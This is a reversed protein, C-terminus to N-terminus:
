ARFTYRGAAISVNVEQLRGQVDDLLARVQSRLRGDVNGPPDLVPVIFRRVWLRTQDEDMLGLQMVGGQRVLWDLLEDAPIDDRVQGDLQGNQLAVLMLKSVMERFANAIGLTRPATILDMLRPDKAAERSTYVQMEEVRQAVTTTSELLTQCRTFHESAIVMAARRLLDDKSGLYRYATARSVGSRSAIADVSLATLEGGAMDDLLDILGQDLRQQVTAAQEDSILSMPM